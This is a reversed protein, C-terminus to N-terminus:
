GKPRQIAEILDHGFALTDGWRQAPDAARARQRVAIIEADSLSALLAQWPSSAAMAAVFAPDAIIAGIAGKVLTREFEAQAKDDTEIVYRSVFMDIAQERAADDSGAALSHLTVAEAAALLDGWDWDEQAMVDRMAGTVRVPVVAMRHLAAQDRM